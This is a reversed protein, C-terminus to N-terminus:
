PGGVGPYSEKSRRLLLWVLGGTGFFALASPEPVIGVTFPLSGDLFPPNGLDYALTVPVPNSEGVNQGASLAQEYNSFAGGGNYWARVQVTVHLSSATYLYVDGRAFPGALDVDPGREPGHRRPLERGFISFLVVLRKDGRFRFSKRLRKDDPRRQGCKNGAGAM